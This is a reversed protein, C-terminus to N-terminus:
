NLIFNNTLFTCSILIMGLDVHIIKFTDSVTAFAYGSDILGQLCWNGVTTSASTVGSGAM